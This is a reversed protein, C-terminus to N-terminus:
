DPRSLAGGEGRGGYRCPPPQHCLKATPPPGRLGPPTLHGDRPALDQLQWLGLQPPLPSINPYGGLSGESFPSRRIGKPSNPPCRGASSPLLPYKLSGQARFSLLCPFRPARSFLWLFPGWELGLLLLPAGLGLFCLGDLRVNVFLLCASPQSLCQPPSILSFHRSNFICPGGLPGWGAPSM